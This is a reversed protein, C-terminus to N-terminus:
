RQSFPANSNDSIDSASWSPANMRIISLPQYRKESHYPQAQTTLWLQWAQVVSDKASQLSAHNGSHNACQWWFQIHPSDLYDIRAVIIADSTGIWATLRTTDNESHDPVYVPRWQLVANTAHRWTPRGSPPSLTLQRTSGPPRFAACLVVFHM